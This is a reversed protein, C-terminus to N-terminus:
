RYNLTYVARATIVGPNLSAGGKFYYYATYSLSEQVASDNVVTTTAGLIVPKLPDNNFLIQFGVNNVGSETNALVTNAPTSGSMATGDFKMEVITHIDCALDIHFAQSESSYRGTGHSQMNTASVAPLTISQDSESTVTCTHAPVVLPASLKYTFNYRYRNGCWGGCVTSRQDQNLVAVVTGTPLSFGGMGPTYSERKLTITVPAARTTETKGARCNTAPWTCYQNGNPLKIPADIDDGGAIKLHTVEYGKLVGSVTPAGYVRLGDNYNAKGDCSITSPTLIIDPYPAGNSSPTLTAKASVIGGACEFAHALNPSIVGYGIGLLLLYSLPALKKLWQAEPLSIRKLLITRNDYWRM